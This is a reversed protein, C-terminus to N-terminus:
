FILGKKELQMQLRANNENIVRLLAESTATIELLLDAFAAALLEDQIEEPLQHRKLSAELARPKQSILHHFEKDFLSRIETDYLGLSM